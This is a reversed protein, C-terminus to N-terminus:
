QPNIEWTLINVSSGADELVVARVMTDGATAEILWKYLGPANTAYSIDQEKYTSWVFYLSHAWDPNHVKFKFSFGANPNDSDFRPGQNHEWRWIFAFGGSAFKVSPSNEKLDNFHMVGTETGLYGYPGDVLSQDGTIPSFFTGISELRRNGVGDYTLTVYCTYEVWGEEYDRVIEDPPTVFGIWGAHPQGIKYEDDGLLGQILSLKKIAVNVTKGNISATLVYDYPDDGGEELVRLADYHPAGPILVNFIADEVGADVAYLEGMSEEYARGVILGSGMYGMLPAIVLSGIVLLILAL